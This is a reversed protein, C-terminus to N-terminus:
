GFQLAHRTCAFGCKEIDKSTTGRRADYGAIHQYVAALAILRELALSAVYHLLVDM